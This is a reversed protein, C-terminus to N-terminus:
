SNARSVPVRQPLANSDIGLLECVRVAVSVLTQSCPECRSGCCLPWQSMPMNFLPRVCPRYYDQLSHEDGAQALARSFEESRTDIVAGEARPLRLLRVRLRWFGPSSVRRVGRGM